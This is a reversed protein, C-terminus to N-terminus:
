TVEEIKDIANADWIYGSACDWGYYWHTRRDLRLEFNYPSIILGQYEEALRAWDIQHGFLGYESYVVKNYKETFNLINQTSNLRLINSDKKLYVRYHHKFTELQFSEAECWLKWDYEGDVSLWLGKPKVMEKETPQAISWLTHIPEKTYHSLNM